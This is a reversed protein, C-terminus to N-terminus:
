GWTRVWQRYLERAHHEQTGINMLGCVRRYEDVFSDESAIINKLYIPVLGYRDRLRQKEKQTSSLLNKIYQLDYGRCGTKHIQQRIVWDEAGNLEIYFGKVQDTPSFVELLSEFYEPHQVEIITYPLDLLKEVGIRRLPFTNELEWHWWTTRDNKRVPLQPIEVYSYNKFRTATDLHEYEGVGLAITSTDLTLARSLFNGGSGAIYIIINVNV